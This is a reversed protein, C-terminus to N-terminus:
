APKEQNDTLQHLRKYTDIWPLEQEITLALNMLEADSGIPGMAQVASPMDSGDVWVPASFAPIGTINAMLTFPFPEFSQYFNERFQRSNPLYRELKIASVFKLAKLEAPDPVLEGNLPADIATVPTLIFDYECFYTAMLLRFEAWRQKALAFDRASVHRGIESILWTAPEVDKRTVPKGLKAGITQLDASVQGFLVPCFSDLLDYGNYLRDIEVIEYGRAELAAVCKRLAKLNNESVPMSLPSTFCVGIKKGRPSLAKNGSEIGSVPAYPASATMGLTKNLVQFSDRVTRSIVHTVAAGDWPEGMPDQPVLGRSPKFGFTGTFAAPIRISGGGDTAGAVPVIGCAVAAAAGGSSGGANCETNWPNRTVGTHASETVPLLGFEATNTAGMINFGAQRYRKVLECDEASVYSALAKSGCTHPFGKVETVLDKVLFPVGKYDTGSLDKRDAYEAAQRADHFTLANIRPNWKDIQCGAAKVMDLPSLEGRAVLEALGAADYDVYEDFSNM